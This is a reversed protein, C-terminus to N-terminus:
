YTKMKNKHRYRPGIGHIVCHRTLARNSSGIVLVRDKCGIM